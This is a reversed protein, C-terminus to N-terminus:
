WFQKESRCANRGYFGAHLGNKGEREFRCFLPGAWYSSTFVIAEATTKRVQWPMARAWAGDAVSAPVRGEVEGVDSAAVVFVGPGDDGDAVNEGTASLVGGLNVSIRKLFKLARDIPGAAIPPRTDSM